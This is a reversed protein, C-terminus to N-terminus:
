KQLSDTRWVKEYPIFQRYFVEGGRNEMALVIHTSKASVQGEKLKWGLVFTVLAKHNFVAVDEYAEVGVAMGNNELSARMGIDDNGLAGDYFYWVEFALRSPQDSIVRFDSFSNTRLEPLSDALRISLSSIQRLHWGIVVIPARIAALLIYFVLGAAVSYLVYMLGYSFSTVQGTWWAFFFAGFALILSPFVQGSSFGKIDAVIQRRVADDALYDPRKAPLNSVARLKNGASV